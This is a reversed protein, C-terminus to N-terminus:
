DRGVQAGVSLRSTAKTAAAAHVAAEEAKGAVRDAAAGATDSADDTSTAAAFTAKTEAAGNDTTQGVAAQVRATETSEAEAVAAM